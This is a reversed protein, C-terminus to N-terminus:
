NSPIIVIKVRMTYNPPAVIAGNAGQVELTISGTQHTYSYSTGNYVEPMAEYINNGASFSVIIGDHTNAYADIEPMKITTYFTQSTASYQWDAPVVDTIVTINPIVVEKTTCSSILIIGTILLFLINKKM